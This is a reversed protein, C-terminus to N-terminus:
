VSTISSNVATFYGVSNFHYNPVSSHVLVIYYKEASVETLDSQPDLKESVLLLM